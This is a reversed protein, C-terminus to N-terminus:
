LSQPMAWSSLLARARSSCIMALPSLLSRWRAFIWRCMSFWDSGYLVLRSLVQSEPLYSFVQGALCFCVRHFRVEEGQAKGGKGCRGDSFVWAHRVVDRLEGRLRFCAIGLRLLAEGAAVAFAVVDRLVVAFRNRPQFFCRCLVMRIGLVVEAGEVAVAGHHRFVGGFCSLPQFFGSRLAVFCGGDGQM